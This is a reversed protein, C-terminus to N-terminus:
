FLWTRTGPVTGSVISVLLGLDLREDGSRLALEVAALRGEAGALRCRGM